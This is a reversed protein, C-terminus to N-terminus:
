VVSPFSSDGERWAHVEGTILHINLIRYNHLYDMLFEFQDPTTKLLMRRVHRRFQDYQDGSFRDDTSNYWTEQPYLFVGWAGDGTHPNFTADLQLLNPDSPRGNLGPLDAIKAPEIYSLRLLQPNSQASPNDPHPPLPAPM